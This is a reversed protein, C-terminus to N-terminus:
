DQATCDAYTTRGDEQVFAGRGKNWFVITEAKNAYRGGDASMAQPLTMRRGDSFALQVRSAGTNIFTADISRGGACTFRAQIRGPAANGARPTSAAGPAAHASCTGAYFDAATCSRGGPLACNGREAATNSGSTVTYSGGSIACFRAAPTAYGTVKIGGTRCQGRLLAWEECQLNDEFVCVGYQGGAPNTEMVLRGGQAVCNQSAPNALRPAPAQAHTAGALLVFATAAFARCASLLPSAISM